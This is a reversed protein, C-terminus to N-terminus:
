KIGELWEQYSIYDEQLSGDGTIFTLDCRCRVVEKAEGQPDGPYRLGNKFKSKMPIADGDLRSHSPRTKRDLIAHKNLPLDVEHPQWVIFYM